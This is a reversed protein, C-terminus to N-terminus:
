LNMAKIPGIGFRHVHRAGQRAKVPNPKLGNNLQVVVGTLAHTVRFALLNFFHLSTKRERTHTVRVTGGPEGVVLVAARGVQALRVHAQVVEGVLHSGYVLQIWNVWLKFGGPKKLEQNLRHLSRRTEFNAKL